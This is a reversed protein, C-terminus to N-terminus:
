HKACRKVGGACACAPQRSRRESAYGGSPCRCHGGLMMVVAGLWIPPVMPKHLDQGLRAMTNSDGLSLYPQGLGRSM